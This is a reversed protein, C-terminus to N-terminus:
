TSKKQFMEICEFIKASENIAFCGRSQARGLFAILVNLAINEDEITVNLLNIKQDKTTQPTKTSTQLASGDPLDPATPEPYLESM